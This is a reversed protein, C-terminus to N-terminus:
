TDCDEPTGAAALAATVSQGLLAFEAAFSARGEQDTLERRHNRLIARARNVGGLVEAVRELVATRVTADGIDLGAVVESLTRLGATLGDLRDAPRAAAAVTGVTGAETTLREIEDHYGTFADPRQLFAVARGAASATDNAIDEALTDIAATDAYRMERLGTLEGHCARLETIRDIWEAATAPSEGRVRRVLRAIRQASEALADAAQRTLERVTRFEEVMQGASARIEELPTRLDGTEAGGLWHHRDAARVCADALAAYVETTPDTRMAQRAIALADAIGRVLDANGIRALPGSGAPATHNEAAYPSKWLQVPHSRAPEESGASPEGRLVVLTGDDFLAYGLCPLPLAIEKRITGYPLLLGGGRARARFAFLVDEGGPSRGAREFELGGVGPGTFGAGTFGPGGSEPGTTEVEFTKVTGAALCYGGPFVIGQDDPLRRASQGIGDLRVVTGTLTNLVLHRRVSENYPRVRLLLLAGVRAHAIEADALSQLPEDVPESHVADASETDADTRVTLAGGVTSVYAVSTDGGVAVRPHRGTLHDDRTTETWDFDYPPPFVHDREGRADLFRVPDTAWRLVRIDDAKEGTRFVALLKGDVRRLQILRAGRYYRHLAAFEAIFAPDDLLGPVAEPPLPNLERDYLAFVDGVEVPRTGPIRPDRGLLLRDGVAVIDSPVSPVPGTLRGTGTLTLETSGFERTRAADLVEARRALEAAGARLRDRLVEYTGADM